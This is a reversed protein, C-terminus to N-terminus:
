AIRLNLQAAILLMLLIDLHYSDYANTDVFFMCGQLLIIRIFLKGIPQLSKCCNENYSQMYSSYFHQM